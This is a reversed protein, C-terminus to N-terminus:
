RGTPSGARDDMRGFGYAVDDPVAPVEPVAALPLRRAATPRSHERGGPRARPPIVPAILTGTM